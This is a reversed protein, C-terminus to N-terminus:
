GRMDAGCSACFYPYKFAFRPNGKQIIVVGDAIAISEDLPEYIAFLEGTMYGCESCQIGREDKAIWHGHKNERVDATPFYKAVNAIEHATKWDDAEEVEQELIEILKEKEIYEAM